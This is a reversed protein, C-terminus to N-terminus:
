RKFVLCTDDDGKLAVGYAILTDSPMVGSPFMFTGIQALAFPFLDKEASHVKSVVGEENVSFIAASSSIIGPGLKTDLLDRIFSGTPPGCEVSTSFFIDSEGQGSYISSGDLAALSRLTKKGDDHVFEYLYNQELQTDTALYVKDALEGIWAARFAQKGRMLPYLKSFDLDSQWIGAGCDFDGTLVFVKGRVQSVAHVHEIEGSPISARQSWCNTACSRGWIGVAKKDANIFYEGFVVEKQGNPQKITSFGLSRRGNPIMFDFDLVGKKLDLRWIESRRAILVSNDCVVAHTPPIRLVREALRCYSAFRLARRMPFQCLFVPDRLDFDVRYLSGKSYCLLGDTLIALPRLGKVSRFIKWDTM